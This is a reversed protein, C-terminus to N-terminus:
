VEKQNKCDRSLQQTTNVITDKWFFISSNVFCMKLLALGGKAQALSYLNFLHQLIVSGIEVFRNRPLFVYKKDGKVMNKYKNINQYIIDSFHSLIALFM